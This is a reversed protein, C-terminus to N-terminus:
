INRALKVDCVGFGFRRYLYDAYCWSMIKQINLVGIVKWARQLVLVYMVCCAKHNVKSALSLHYKRQGDNPGACHYFCWIYAGSLSSSHIYPCSVSDSRKACCASYNDLSNVSETQTTPTIMQDM